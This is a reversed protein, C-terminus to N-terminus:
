LKEFIKKIIKPYESKFDPNLRNLYLKLAKVENKLESLSTIAKELNEIKETLTIIEKEIIKIKEKFILEEKM